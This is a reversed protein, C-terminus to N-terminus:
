QSAPTFPAPHNFHLQPFNLGSRLALYICLRLRSACAKAHLIVQEQWLQTSALRSLLLTVDYCASSELHSQLNRRVLELEATERGDGAASLPCSNIM